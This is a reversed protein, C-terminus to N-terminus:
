PVLMVKSVEEGESEKLVEPDLKELHVLYVLNELFELDELKELLVQIEEHVLPVKLVPLGKTVQVELLVKPALHDLTERKEQCELIEKVVQLDLNVWKALPVRFGLIAGQDLIELFELIEKNEM